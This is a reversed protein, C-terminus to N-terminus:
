RSITLEYGSCDGAGMRRYVKIFIEAPWEVDRTSWQLEGPDSADDTFDWETLDRAPDGAGGCAMAAGCRLRTEFAFVGGENVTLEIRPTGGGVMMTADGLYPFAVKMWDEAGTVPIVGTTRIPPAGPMLSGLDTALTCGGGHMDDTCARGADRAGADRGERGGDGGPRGGDRRPGADGRFGPRDAGGKACGTVCIAGVAVVLALARALTSRRRSVMGTADHYGSAASM